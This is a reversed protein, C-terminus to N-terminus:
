FVPGQNCLLQVFTDIEQSSDSDEDTDLEMDIFFDVHSPPNHNDKLVQQEMNSLVINKLLNTINFLNHTCKYSVIMQRHLFDLKHINLVLQEVSNADM